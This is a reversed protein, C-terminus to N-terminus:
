HVMQGSGQQEPMLKLLTNLLSFILNQGYILLYIFMTMDQGKKKGIRKGGLVGVGKSVMKSPTLMKGQMDEM